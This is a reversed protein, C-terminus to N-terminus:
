LTLYPPIIIERELSGLYHCLDGKVEDHNDSSLSFSEHYFYENLHM